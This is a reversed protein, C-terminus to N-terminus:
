FLGLEALIAEQRATLLAQLDIRAAELEAKAKERAARLAQLKDAIESDTADARKLTARLDRMATSVAADTSAGSRLLGSIPGGAGGREGANALAGMVRQIRPALVAWEEDTAGLRQKLSGAVLKRTATRLSEVMEQDMVGKAVLERQLEALDFTGDQMKQRMQDRFANPDIGKERMNETVDRLILRLETAAAREEEGPAPAGPSGPPAPPADQAQAPAFVVLPLLAALVVLVSLRWQM